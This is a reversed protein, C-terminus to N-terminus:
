FIHYIIISKIIFKPALIKVLITLTIGFAEKGLPTEDAKSNKIGKQFLAFEITGIVSKNDTILAIIATSIIKKVKL